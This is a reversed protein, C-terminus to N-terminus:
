VIKSEEAPASIAASKTEGTAVESPFYVYRDWDSCEEGKCENSCPRHSRSKSDVHLPHQFNDRAKLSRYWNKIFTLRDKLVTVVDETMEKAFSRQGSQAAGGM